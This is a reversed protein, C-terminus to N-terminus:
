VLVRVQQMTPLMTHAVTLLAYRWHSMRQHNWFHRFTLILNHEESREDGSQPDDRQSTMWQCSRLRNMWRSARRDSWGRCSNALVMSQNQEDRLRSFFMVSHIFCQLKSLYEVTMSWFGRIRAMHFPTMQLKISSSTMSSGGAGVGEQHHWGAAGVGEKSLHLGGWYAMMLTFHIRSEAALFTPAKGYWQHHECIIKWSGVHLQFFVYNTQPSNGPTM